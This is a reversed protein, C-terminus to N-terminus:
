LEQKYIQGDKTVLRVDELPQINAIPDGHVAVIDALKGKTISGLKDAVGLLDADAVTAAQIETFTAQRGSGFRDTM